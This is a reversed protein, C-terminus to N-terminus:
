DQTLVAIKVNSPAAALTALLIALTVVAFAGDEPHTAADTGGCFDVKLALTAM